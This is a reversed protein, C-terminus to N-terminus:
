VHARGIEQYDKSYGEKLANMLERNLLEDREGLNVPLGSPGLRTLDVGSKSKRQKSYERERMSRQSDLMRSLIRQQREITRRSIRTNKLDKLVEDMEKTIGDMRSNSDHKGAMEKQMKEMADRLQKQRAALRRMADSNQKRGGPMLSLTESNIGGQQQAMQQMQEMYQEFGTGSGSQALQQM